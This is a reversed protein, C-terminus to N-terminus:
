PFMPGVVPNSLTGLNEIECCVRDGVQMYGRARVVDNRQYPRGGLEKDSAWATGGPTGTAIVYGPYLTLFTSFFSVLESCKFIMNATTNNQRLEDNVKTRLWLSQPNAIEDTTAIYPGMPTSTDFNKSSGAEYFHSGDPRFRVQRERATVDNLITYGFIHEVARDKPIHRGKKGIVVALEVEYDLKTTVRPDREIPDDPGIVSMPTKFFFEPERGALPAEDKEERHDMYNGGSALILRPALPARLRVDAVPRRWAGPKKGADLARSLLRRGHEGADMLPVVDALAAIDEPSLRGGSEAVARVDIVHDEDLLGVRITEGTKESFRVVKM